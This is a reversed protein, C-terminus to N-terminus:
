ATRAKKRGIYLAGGIMGLSALLVPLSSPEPDLVGTIQCAAFFGCGELIADSGWGGSFSTGDFTLQVNTM